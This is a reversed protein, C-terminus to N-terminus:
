VPEEKNQWQELSVKGDRIVGYTFSSLWDGVNVYVGKDFRKIEPLHTHGLMVIDFGQEIERRAFEALREQVIKTVQRRLMLTRSFSAVRRALVVGIDPHLLSFLFANFRNGMLARFFRSVVGQDIRDGHALYVRLGDIVTDLEDFFGEVGVEQQLAKGFWLDHNGRFLFVKTSSRRLDALRTLIKLGSKPMVARFEFWFEFLDGLIYLSDAKGKIHELFKELRHEALRGTGALHADSIFFHASM